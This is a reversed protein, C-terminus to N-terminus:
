TNNNNNIKCRQPAAVKTRGDDTGSHWCYYYLGVITPGEAFGLIGLNLTKKATKTDNEETRTMQYKINNKGLYRSKALIQFPRGGRGVSKIDDQM